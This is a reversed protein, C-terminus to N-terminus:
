FALLYTAGIGAADEDLAVAYLSIRLASRTDFRHDIDLGLRLRDRADTTAPVRSAFLGDVEVEMLPERGGIRTSFEAAPILATRAGLEIRGAVGLALDDRGWRGGSYQAPFGGGTEAFPDLRARTRTAMAYPSFRMAGARWVDRFDARVGIADFHGRPRADSTVDVDSNTYARLTRADFEGYSATLSVEAREAFRMAVEATLATARIRIDSGDDLGDRQSSKALGLGARLPGIDRCSGFEFWQRRADGDASISADANLWACNREDADGPGRDFLTRRHVGDFAMRPLTDVQAIMAGGVGTLGANFAGLDTIIGSGRPDIRALWGAGQSIGLPDRDIGVIINGQHNTDTANFLSLTSPVVVGASALWARVSQMGTQSSWRFAQQTGSANASYGVVVRGDGSIANAASQSDGPLFGLGQMGGAATWRFAQDRLIPSCCGPSLLRSIGVVTNGDTSVDLGYSAHDGALTGLGVMGSERTWRFAQDLYVSTGLDPDNRQVNSTGVVVDGNGSIANGISFKGTPLFGLREVANDRWVVAEYNDNFSSLTFFSPPTRDPFRGAWNRTGLVIAGVIATGDGTIGNALSQGNPVVPNALMVMGRERTWRFASMTCVIRFCGGSTGVVIGGDDSIGWAISGFFSNPDLRTLTGDPALLTAHTNIFMGGAIFRGDPTIVYPTFSNPLPGVGDAAMIGPALALGAAFTLIRRIRISVVRRTLRIITM